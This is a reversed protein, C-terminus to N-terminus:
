GWEGKLAHISKYSMGCIKCAHPVLSPIDVDVNDTKPQFTSSHVDLSADFLLSCDRKTTSLSSQVESANKCGDQNVLLETSCAIHHWSFYDDNEANSIECADDDILVCEKLFDKSILDFSALFNDKGMLGASESDVQSLKAFVQDSVHKCMHAQILSSVTFHCECFPCKIHNMPDYSAMHIALATYAPFARRCHLCTYNQCDSSPRRPEDECLAKAALPFKNSTFDMFDLDSFGVKFHSVVSVPPVAETSAALVQAVRDETQQNTFHVLFKHMVMKDISTFVQKCLDCNYKSLDSVVDGSSCEPDISSDSKIEIISNVSTCKSHTLTTNGFSTHAKWGANELQM